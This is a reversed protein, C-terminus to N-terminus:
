CDLLSKHRIVPRKMAEGELWKVDEDIGNMLNLSFEGNTNPQYHGFIKIRDIGIWDGIYQKYM